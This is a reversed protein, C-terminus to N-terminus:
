NRQPYAGLLCIQFTIAQIPARNEHPVNGGTESISISAMATDADADAYIAKEGTTDAALLHVADGSSGADTTAKLTHTHAPIQGTTLSVTEVGGKKGLQYNSLGPGQGQHIPVRGRLDPLAFTSRGDGGYTSGILSFLAQQSAVSLLAGSCLAYNVTAYSFGTMIIQGVYPDSM